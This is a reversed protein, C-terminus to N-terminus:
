SSVIVTGTMSNHVGCIYPYTGAKDFTQKFTKSTGFNEGDVKLEDIRISHEFDDENTWTVTSGAKVTLAKPSFAFDKVAVDTSGSPATAAPAKDPSDNGGCAGLFPVLALAGVLVWRHLRNTQM